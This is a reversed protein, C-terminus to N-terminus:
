ISVNMMASYPLAGGDTVVTDEPGAPIREFYPNRISLPQSIDLEDAPGERLPLAQFISPPVVKESGALVYVPVGRMRGIAVLGASGVKNIFGDSSVADAGLLVADAGAIASGIAADSYIAVQIASAALNAALAMGERGPRSEACSVLLDETKGLELVTREVAESRSCTVVRLPGSSRRLSILPAAIRGISEPARRIRSALRELDRQPDRSVDILAAIKRFGAMSPQADVLARATNLLLERDNGLAQLVAIGQSVLATAGSTRDLSIRRVAGEIMDITRKATKGAGSTALM